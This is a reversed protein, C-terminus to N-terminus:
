SGGSNALRYINNVYATPGPPWNPNPLHLLAPGGNYAALAAHYAGDTGGAATWLAKMKRAGWELGVAPTFLDEPRGTFGMEAATELMIQMLGYSCAALPGYVASKAVTSGKIYHTYFVPEYRFADAHGSSEQIVQAQLLALPLGHLAAASSIIADYNTTM